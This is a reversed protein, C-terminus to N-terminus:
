VHARGIQAAAASSHSLHSGGILLWFPSVCLLLGTLRGADKGMLRELTWTSAGTAIGTLVPGVLWAAGLTLGAALLLTHLPPYISAWGESSLVGNQLVLAAAADGTPLTLRGDAVIAAHLLQAMEDVTTPVRGHARSALVGSGLGALAGTLTAFRLSTPARGADWPRRTAHGTTGTAPQMRMAVWALTVVILSGSVGLRWLAESRFLM